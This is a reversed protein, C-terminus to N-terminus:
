QWGGGLARYLSTVAVQQRLRTEVLELRVDIAERQATLVELYNARAAAFLDRAIGVSRDLAASQRSKFQYAQELNTIASSLTSVESVGELVRQRYALVAQQQIASARRFEAQLATRNFLPMALDGVISYIMSEPLTFLYAGTFARVGFTAGLNVEPLFEARATRVDFRTAALTAEAQRIDPRQRLLQSPLGVALATAPALSGLTGRPVPQPFRGLLRNMRNEADRIEQQVEYELGQANLLLAEFQTVALETVAAAERQARVVALENRQLDIAQRIIALKADLALLEYYTNAVEAVLATQVYRRGEVSGLVRALAAGRQNRIRGRVDVEWSAQAGITLDGLPDPVRRGPTMDTADNGAGEATYRGAKDLGAGAGISVRPALRGRVGRLEAQAIEIEQLTALAEPNHQLATDILTRLLSDAFFARWPVQAATTTDRGVPAADFRTPVPQPAPDKPLAPVVCGTLVGLLAAARSLRRALTDRPRM